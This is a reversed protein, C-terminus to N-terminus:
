EVAYGLARANDRVRHDRTIVTVVDPPEGLFDVTALHVADLTRIPEIPFPRGIRALISDTLAVVFCRREFRRLGRMAARAQEPSLRATTRARLIARAGEALTLVSTVRRGNARLSKRAAVDNELLTALLASTEIYRIGLDATGSLM